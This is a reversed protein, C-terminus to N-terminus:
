GIIVADAKEDFAKRFLKKYQTLNGHLDASFLIRFSKQSNLVLSDNFALRRLADRVVESKNSYLGKDVLDQAKKVLEKTLRFQMTQMVM